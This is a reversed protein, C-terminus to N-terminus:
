LLRQATNGRLTGSHLTLMMLTIREMRLSFTLLFMFPSPMNSLLQLSRRAGRRLVRGEEALIPSHETPKDCLTRDMTDIIELNLQLSGSLFFM